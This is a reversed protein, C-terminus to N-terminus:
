RSSGKGSFFFLVVVGVAFMFFLIAWGGLGIEASSFALLLALGIVGLLGGLKIVVDFGV